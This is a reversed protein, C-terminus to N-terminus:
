RSRKHKYGHKGGMKSEMHGRTSFDEGFDMKQGMFGVGDEENPLMPLIALLAALAPPMARPTKVENEM